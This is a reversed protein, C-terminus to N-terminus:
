SWTVDHKRNAKGVGIVPLQHADGAFGALPVHEEYVVEISESFDFLFEDRKDALSCRRTLRRDVRTRMHILWKPTTPQLRQIM